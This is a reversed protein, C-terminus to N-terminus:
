YVRKVKDARLCSTCVKLKKPAGNVLTKVPQLNPNQRHRHHKNSFSVKNAKNSSKGCIDCVKSM